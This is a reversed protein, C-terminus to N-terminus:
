LYKFHKDIFFKQGSNELLCRPLSAKHNPSLLSNQTPTPELRPPPPKKIKGFNIKQLKTLMYLNIQLLKGKVKM